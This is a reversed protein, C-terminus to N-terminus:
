DVSVWAKTAAVAVKTEGSICLAAPIKFRVVSATSEEVHVSQAGTYRPCQQQINTLTKPSVVTVTATSSVRLVLLIVSAVTTIMALGAAWKAFTVRRRLPKVQCAAEEALVTLLKPPPVGALSAPGTTVPEMHGSKENYRLNLPPRAAADLFGLVAALYLVAATVSLGKAAVPIDREPGLLLGALLAAMGASLLGAGTSARRRWEEPAGFIVEYWKLM